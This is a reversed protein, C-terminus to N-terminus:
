QDVAAALEGVLSFNAGFQGRLHSQLHERGQRCGTCIGPQPPRDQGRSRLGFHRRCGAFAAFRVARSRRGAHRRRLARLRWFACHHLQGTCYRRRFWDRFQRRRRWENDVSRHGPHRWPRGLSIYTTVATGGSSVLEFGGSSILTGTAHGGRLVTEQGSRLLTGSTSGVSSVIETGGNSVTTGAATGASHVM